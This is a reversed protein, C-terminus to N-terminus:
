LLQAICRGHVESRRRLCLLGAGRRYLSSSHLAYLRDVGLPYSPATGIVARRWAFERGSDADRLRRHVTKHRPLSAQRKRLEALHCTEKTPSRKEEQLWPRDIFGLYM